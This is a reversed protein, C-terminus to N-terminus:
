NLPYGIMSGEYKRILFQFITSFIQYIIEGISYNRYGITSYLLSKWNVIEMKEGVPM